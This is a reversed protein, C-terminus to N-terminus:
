GLGLIARAQEAPMFRTLYWQAIEYGWFLSIYAAVGIYPGFPIATEGPKYKGRVILWVLIGAAPIGGLLISLFGQEIILPWGFLLGLGLALLVDGGGMARLLCFVGYFGALALAGILSSVWGPSITAGACLWMFLLSAIVHTVVIEDPIITTEADIIITLFYLSAFVLAFAIHWTSQAAPDLGTYGVNVVLWTTALWLLATGAEVAPYRWHIPAHCDRCKGRLLVLYSFLPVNDFWRIAKGCKPCHSPTVVWEREKPDELPWRYIAVNFFSGFVLGLLGILIYWVPHLEM